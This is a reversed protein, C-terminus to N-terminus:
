PAPDPADGAPPTASGAALDLLWPHNKPALVLALGLGDLVALLKDLRVTGQGNELRSLLDSSVGVLAADDIRLAQAQRQARVVPGVQSPAGIRLPQGSPSSPRQPMTESNAPHACFVSM